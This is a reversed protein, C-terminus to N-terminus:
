GQDLNEYLERFERSLKHSGDYFVMPKAARHSERIRVSSSVYPELVPINFERLGDVAERPFRARSQFQNIIIGEIVLGQNHDERVEKINLLLDKLAERSFEDCDYPILVRDAAILASLSFFNYAPPTDIFIEDFVRVHEQLFDRLKYIKHRSELKQEHDTLGSHSSILHLNDFSTKRVFNEPKFSSYNFSICSEFYEPMGIIEDDGDIQLYASSNAQADIDVVLVKRGRQAAVASLNCTLTSKGVGGKRNFIVRIM